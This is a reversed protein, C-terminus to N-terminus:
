KLKNKAVQLVNNLLTAVTVPGVGGPVPSVFSAVGTVSPLDIDGVVGANSESTGADILIAGDKIMNGNIFKGHGTGSIIIDANKIISEKNETKSTVTTVNHGRSLLLHTVPKGVLEGQGVVVINKGELNKCVSDLLKMCALATPYGSVSSNGYFMKRANEGLFDVDISADIANCVVDKNIHKPLPLQIILGCMNEINNLDKIEKELDETTIDESFSAHYFEIGVSEATKAKMRVYQASVEDNGVLVDCFVPVFPLKSIDEKIQSLMEDRIQRGNIIQTNQM